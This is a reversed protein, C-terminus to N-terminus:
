PNLSMFMVEASGGAGPKALGMVKVGPKVMAASGATIKTITADPGVNISQQGGKYTVNITATAGGTKSAVEGNAITTVNGNTMTTNPPGMPNHGEGMGRMSEPFIHCETAHLLKDDREVATCGVFKGAGLDAVTGKNSLTINPKEPLTLKVDPGQDAKVVFASGSASAVTGAFRIAGAFPNAPASAPAQAMATAAATCALLAIAAALPRFPM